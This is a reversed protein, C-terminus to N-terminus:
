ANMVMKVKLLQVADEFAQLCEDDSLQFKRKSSQYIPDFMDHIYKVAINKKVDVKIKMNKAQRICREWTQTLIESERVKEMIRCTDSYSRFSWTKILTYQEILDNDIHRTRQSSKYIFVFGQGLEYLYKATSSNGHKDYAKESLLKSGPPGKHIVFAPHGQITMVWGKVNVDDFWSHLLEDTIKPNAM